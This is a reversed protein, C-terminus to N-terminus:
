NGRQWHGGAFIMQFFSLVDIFPIKQLDFPDGLTHTLM